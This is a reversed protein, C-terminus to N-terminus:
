EAAVPRYRRIVRGAQPDILEIVLANPDRSLDSLNWNEVFPSTRTEQWVIERRTLDAVVLLVDHDLMEEVSLAAILDNEVPLPISGDPFGGPPAHRLPFADTRGGITTQFQSSLSASLNAKGTQDLNQMESVSMGFMQELQGLIGGARGKAADRIMEEQQDQTLGDLLTPDLGFQGGMQLMLTRKLEEAQEPTMSQLDEPSLGLESFSGM